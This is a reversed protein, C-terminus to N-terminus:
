RRTAIVRSVAAAGDPQTDGQEGASASPRPGLAAVIGAILAGLAFGFDRWFRYVAVTRARNLGEGPPWWARVIWCANSHKRHCSVTAIKKADIQPSRLSQPNLPEIQGCGLQGCPSRMRQRIGRPQHEGGRQERRVLQADAVQGPDGLARLGKNGVVYPHQARM